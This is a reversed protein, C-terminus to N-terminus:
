GELEDFGKGVWERDVGYGKELNASFNLNVGTSNEVLRTGDDSGVGTKGIHGRIAEERQTISLSFIKLKPKTPFINVQHKKKPRNRIQRQLM